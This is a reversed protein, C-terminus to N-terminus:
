GMKATLTTDLKKRYVGDPKSKDLKIKTQYGIINM